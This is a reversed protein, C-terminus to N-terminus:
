FLGDRGAINNPMFSGQLMEMEGVTFNAPHDNFNDPFSNLYPKFYANEKRKEEMM